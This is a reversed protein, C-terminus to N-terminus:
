NRCGAIASLDRKTRRGQNIFKELDSPKFRIGIGAYKCSVIARRSALRYLTGPHIRLVAAAERVTYLRDGFESM